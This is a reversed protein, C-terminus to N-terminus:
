DIWGFLWIPLKRGLAYELDDAAIFGQPSEAIQHGSKNRGGVEILYQEDVLFDGKEPYRVDHSRRLQSLVFSERVAGTNPEGPHLAYYLNPNSFYIKDPKQMSSLGKKSSSLLVLLDAKALYHLYQVVTNRSIELRESIKAINPKFPPSTAVAYLLQYISKLNRVDINYLYAMDSEVIARTSAQLLDPYWTGSELFFPLYGTRLYERFHPYPRFHDPLSMILDNSRHLVEDLQVPDHRLLGKIGLYQRFTLGHLQYMVARRSLDANAKHLELMSSGTFVVYLDPYLDYLTKVENAWGPYKHVEDLYVFSGGGRRFDEVLDLLRHETFYLDDLSLYLAEDGLGHRERIRQLLLTTKGVGRSGTIGILRQNWDMRYLEDRRYRTSVRNIRERSRHILEEM